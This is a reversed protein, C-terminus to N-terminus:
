MSFRGDRKQRLLGFSSGGDFLVTAGDRFAGM